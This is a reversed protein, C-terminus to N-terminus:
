LEKRRVFLSLVNIQSHLLKGGFQCAPNAFIFHMSNDHFDVNDSQSVVALMITRAVVTNWSETTGKEPFLLTTM